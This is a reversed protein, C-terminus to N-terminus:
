EVRKAQDDRNENVGTNTKCGVAPVGLQPEDHGPFELLQSFPPGALPEMPNSIYEGRLNVDEVVPRGKSSELSVPELWRCL